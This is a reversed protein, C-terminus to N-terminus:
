CRLSSLARITSQQNAISTKITAVPIGPIGTPHEAVFDRSSQVRRKLDGSLSCLASHTSRSTNNQWLLGVANASLSVVFVVITLVNRARYRALLHKTAELLEAVQDRRAEDERRDDM